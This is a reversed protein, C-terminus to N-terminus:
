TKQVFTTAVAAKNTREGTLLKGVTKVPIFVYCKRSRSIGSYVILNNQKQNCCTIYLIETIMEIIEKIQTQYQQQQTMQKTSWRRSLVQVQMM